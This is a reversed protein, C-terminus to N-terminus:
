LSMCAQILFALLYRSISLSIKKLAISIKRERQSGFQERSREIERRSPGEGLLRRSPPCPSVPANEAAGVSGLSGLILRDSVVAEGLYTHALLAFLVTTNLQSIAVFM